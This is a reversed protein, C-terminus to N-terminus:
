LRNLSLIAIKSKDGEAFNSVEKVHDCVANTLFTGGKPLWSKVTFTFWHSSYNNDNLHNYCEAYAFYTRKIV